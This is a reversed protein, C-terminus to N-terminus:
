VDAASRHYGVVPARPDIALAAEHLQATDVAHWDFNPPLDIAWVAIWDGDRRWTLRVEPRVGCLREVVERHAEVHPRVAEAAREADADSKPDGPGLTGGCTLETYSLHM